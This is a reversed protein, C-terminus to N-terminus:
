PTPPRPKMQRKAIVVLTLGAASLLVPGPGIIDTLSEASGSLLRNLQLVFQVGIVTLVIAAGLLVHRMAPVRVFFAMLAAAAAILIFVSLRAGLDTPETSILFVAPIETANAGDGLPRTWPVFASVAAVIAAILHVRRATVLRQRATGTDASTTAGAPSLPAGTPPPPEAVIGVPAPSVVPLGSPPPPETPAQRDLPPGSPPPPEVPPQREAVPALFEAGCQGCFRADSDRLAGCQTCFRSM